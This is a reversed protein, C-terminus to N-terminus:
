VQLVAQGFFRQPRVQLVQLTAGMRAIQQWRLHVPAKGLERPFHLHFLTRRNIHLQEDVHRFM